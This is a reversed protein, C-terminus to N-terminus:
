RRSWLGLLAAGCAAVVPVGPPVLPVLCLAVLGGLVAVAVARRDRLEEALLVLFFAPFVVDLGLAEPDGLLGGVVAGVATGGIWAGLQPVTAGILYRREFTGDGRNALAWSADVVMQGEAARRLRGGALSPAVALGMPLFRANVFVAAVTAAGVGGGAGLISAAAFQASGSLVLLSCAIPAAVGWGLQRALVGFSVGLVVTAIAFPLGARAGAAFGRDAPPGAPPTRPVGFPHGPRDPERTAGRDDTEV